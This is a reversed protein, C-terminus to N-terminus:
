PLNLTNTKPVLYKPPINFQSKRILPNVIRMSPSVKGNMQSAKSNETHETTDWPLDGELSQTTDYKKSWSVQLPNNKTLLSIPM